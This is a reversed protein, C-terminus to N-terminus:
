RQVTIDTNERVYVRPFGRRCLSDQLESSLDVLGTFHVIAGGGGVEHRLLLLTTDGNLRRSSGAEPFVVSHVDNIRGSM